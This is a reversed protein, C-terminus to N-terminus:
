CVMRCLASSFSLRVVKRGPIWGTSLLDSYTSYTPHNEIVRM